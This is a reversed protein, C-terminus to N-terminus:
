VVEKISIAPTCVRQGQEYWRRSLSIRCGNGRSRVARRRRTRPRNVFAEFLKLKDPDALTSKWECQWTGVIGEMMAELEAGIGLRDEIIM